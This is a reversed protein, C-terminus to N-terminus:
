FHTKGFIIRSRKPHVFLHFPAMKLGNCAVKGVGFDCFAKSFHTTQSWFHTLFPDFIHKELFSGLGNPHVFLHISGRKLGNCTVKAVGFDCFAKSFPNNQSWFHTLFPGFIHKKLFSGVGNPTCLCTFHAGKSGNCAM